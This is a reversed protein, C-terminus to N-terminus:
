TVELNRFYAAIVFSFQYWYCLMPAINNYFNKYEYITKGVRTVKVSM